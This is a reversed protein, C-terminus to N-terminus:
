CKLLHLEKKRGPRHSKHGLRSFCNSTKGPWLHPLRCSTTLSLCVSGCLKNRFSIYWSNLYFTMYFSKKKRWSKDLVLGPVDDAGKVM